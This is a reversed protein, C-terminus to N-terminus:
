QALEDGQLDARAWAGPAGEAREQPHAVPEGDRRRTEYGNQTKQYGFHTHAVENRDVSLKM